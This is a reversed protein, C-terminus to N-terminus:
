GEERIGVFRSHRLHNADTWDTFEVEAALEPRVWHYKKMAEETLAEGRRANKPEPLNAFPCEATELKQLREFIEEKLAPTFGNKVKAIFVLREAEYYGVALNEFHHKGGPKYGGIVLERSRNVKCKVWAGSRLGSEYPADARKAVVGELGQERM